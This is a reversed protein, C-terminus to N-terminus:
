RQTQLLFWAMPTLQQKRISSILINLGGLFSQIIMNPDRTTQTHWCINDANDIWSYFEKKSNFIQHQAYSSLLSKMLMVNTRLM